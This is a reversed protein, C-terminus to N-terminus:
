LCTFLSQYYFNQCYNGLNPNWILNSEKNIYCDIMQNNWWIYIQVQDIKKFSIYLKKTGNYLKYVLKICIIITQMCHSSQSNNDSRYNLRRLGLINIPICDFYLKFIFAILFDNAFYTEYFYQWFRTLRSIFSNLSIDTKATM